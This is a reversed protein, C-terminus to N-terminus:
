FRDFRHSDFSSEIRDARMGKEQMTNLDGSPM